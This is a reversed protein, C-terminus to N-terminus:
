QCRDAFAALRELGKEINEESTAYSFRLYGDTGFPSGPVVALNVEELLAEALDMDSELTRGNCSRGLLGGVDPFAYFAGGPMTCRVGPIENLGEVLLRRRKEFQGRMEEVSEQPGTIAELAAKQAISNPGSTMNSQLNAAAAVVESPGAAYGIRWGTMAYTKSVGNITLVRRYADDSFGAPSAHEREDYLLREYVEDSIIWLGHELAVDVLRRLEQEDLVVGTPNCPSNLVLLKSNETINAELLEPTLKLGDGETTDVAVPRAGCARAQAAYSVWYPAALLVEDGEDLLCLMMMYLSHKAGNSVIVQAPEYDLGNEEHLKRAVAQRLAPIGAAPTYNTFGAQIARHAAQKINEPTDFDPEGVTFMVVDQGEAAMRKAKSNLSLTASPKAEAAARSLTM